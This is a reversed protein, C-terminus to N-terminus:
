PKRYQKIVEQLRRARDAPSLALTKKWMGAYDAGNRKSEVAIQDDAFAQGWLDVWVDYVFLDIVENHDFPAKVEFALRHGLEHVLTGRKTPEPYSARLVMPRGGPEGSFSTGEYISATVPGKEFRLGSIREMAAVIRPGEKAWIARYEDTAARFEDASATFDIQLTRAPTQASASAAITVFLLTVAGRMIDTM